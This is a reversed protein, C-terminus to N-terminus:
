LIAVSDMFSISLILCNLVPLSKIMGVGSTCSRDKKKADKNLCEMCEVSIGKVAYVEGDLKFSVNTVRYTTQGVQLMLKLKYCYTKHRLPLWFKLRGFMDTTKGMCKM